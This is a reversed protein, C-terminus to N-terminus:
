TAEYLSGLMSFRPFIQDGTMLLRYFMGSVCVYLFLVDFLAIM